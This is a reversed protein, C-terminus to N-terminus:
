AFGTPPVLSRTEHAQRGGSLGAIMISQDGAWVAAALADGMTAVADALLRFNDPGVILGLLPVGNM